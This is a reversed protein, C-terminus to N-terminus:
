ITTSTTYRTIRTHSIVFVYQFMLMSTDICAVPQSLATFLRVVHSFRVRM